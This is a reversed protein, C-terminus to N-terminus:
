YQIHGLKKVYRVTAGFLLLTHYALLQLILYDVIQSSHQEMAPGASVMTM